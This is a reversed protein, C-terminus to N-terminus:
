IGLRRIGFLLETKPGSKHYKIISETRKSAQISRDANKTITHFHAVLVNNLDLGGILYTQFLILILLYHGSKEIAVSLIKIDTAAHLIIRYHSFQKILWNRVIHVINAM